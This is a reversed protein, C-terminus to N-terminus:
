LIWNNSLWHVLKGTTGPYLPETSRDCFSPVEQSGSSYWKCWGMRNWLKNVALISALWHLKSTTGYLWPIPLHVYRVQGRKSYFQWHHCWLPMYLTFRKKKKIFGLSASIKGFKNKDLFEVHKPCKRQGDDSTRWQFNPVPIYWALKVVAKLCSWSPFSLQWWVQM